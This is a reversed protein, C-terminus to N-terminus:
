YVWKPYRSVSWAYYMAYDSSALQSQGTSKVRKQIIETLVSKFAFHNNVRDKSLM